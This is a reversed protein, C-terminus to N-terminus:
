RLALADAVLRPDQNALFLDELDNLTLKDYRLVDDETKDLLLISCDEPRVDLLEYLVDISHTSIVVQWDGKALWNLLIKILSPHAFVEFDDWLILKPKLAEILLMVRVAKKIGDGLDDLHIYFVNGNPLEKRIKMTDLIVETFNDSVCESIAKAVRVHAGQKMIFNKYNENQLLEDMKEIYKTNNPLFVVMKQLHSRIDDEVQMGLADSIKQVDVRWRVTENDIFLKAEGEPIEILWKRNKISFEIRAIGSYGYAIHKGSHLMNKVLSLKTNGYVIDGMYPHPLLSLAELIASKGVNNRGVLVTFKSLELTEECDKIGRFEKLHLESVFM